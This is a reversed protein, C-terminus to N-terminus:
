NQPQLKEALDQAWNEIFDWDRTDVSGTVPLGTKALVHKMLNQMVPNLRDFDIKGGFAEMAFFNLDPYKETIQGLYERKV